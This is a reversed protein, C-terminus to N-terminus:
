AEGGSLTAEEGEEERPVVEAEEEGGRHAVAEQERRGQRLAM